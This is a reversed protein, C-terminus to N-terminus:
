LSLGEKYRDGQVRCNLLEHFLYPLSLIPVTLSIHLFTVQPFRPLPLIPFLYLPLSPFTPPPLRSYLASTSNGLNRSLTRLVPPEHLFTRITLSTVSCTSVSNCPGHDMMRCPQTGPGHRSATDCSNSNNHLCSVAVTVGIHPIDHQRSAFRVVGFDCFCAFSFCSLESFM